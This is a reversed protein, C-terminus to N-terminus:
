CASTRSPACPTSSSRRCTRGTCSGTPRASASACSAASRSRASRAAGSGISRISSGTRSRRSAACRGASASISSSAARTRRSSSGPASRASARHAARCPSQIGTGASLALAATLGGIGAGVIPSRSATVEARNRQSVAAPDGVWCAPPPRRRAARKLAPDYKFLTSCYSCIIETTTAWTSSSMRITSRRRRASACSSGRGVYIVAVGPENHFHPTAKDAMTGQRRLRRNQACWLPPDGTRRPCEASIVSAGCARGDRRSNGRCSLRLEVTRRDQLGAGGHLEEIGLPTRM